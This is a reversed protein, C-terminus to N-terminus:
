SDTCLSETNAPATERLPPGTLACLGQFTLGYNVKLNVLRDVRCVRASRMLALPSLCCLQGTCTESSSLDNTSRKNNLLHFDMM